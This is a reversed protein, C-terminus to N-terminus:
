PRSMAHMSQWCCTARRIRGCEAAPGDKAFGTVAHPVSQLFMRVIDAFTMREVRVCRFELTRVEHHLLTCHAILM